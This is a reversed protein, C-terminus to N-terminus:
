ALMTTRQLCLGKLTQSHSNKEEKKEREDSPLEPRRSSPPNEDTPNNETIERAEALKDELQQLQETWHSRKNRRTGLPITEKAAELIGQNLDM